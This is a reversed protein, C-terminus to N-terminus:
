TAIPEFNRVMDCRLNTNLWMEIDDQHARNLATAMVAIQFPKLLLLFFM